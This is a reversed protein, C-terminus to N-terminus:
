GRAIPRRQDEDDRLPRDQDVAAAARDLLETAGADVRVRQRDDDDGMDM